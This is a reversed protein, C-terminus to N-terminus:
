APEFYLGYGDPRVAGAHRSLTVNRYLAANRLRCGEAYNQKLREKETIQLMGIM